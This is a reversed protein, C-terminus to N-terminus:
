FGAQNRNESKSDMLRIWHHRTAGVIKNDESSRKKGKESKTVVYKLALMNPVQNAASVQAIQQGKAIVVVKQSVNKVTVGVRSSGNKCESYSPVIMWALDEEM